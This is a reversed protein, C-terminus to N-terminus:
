NCTSLRALMEMDWIACHVTSEHYYTNSYTWSYYKSPRPNYKVAKQWQSRVLGQFLMALDRGCSETVQLLPPFLTHSGRRCFHSRQQGIPPFLFGYVASHCPVTFHLAYCSVFRFLPHCESVQMSSCFCKCVREVILNNLFKESNTTEVMLTVLIHLFPM